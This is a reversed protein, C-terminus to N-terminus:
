GILKKLSSKLELLEDYVPNGVTQSNFDKSFRKIDGVREDIVNLLDCICPLLIAKNSTALKGNKM